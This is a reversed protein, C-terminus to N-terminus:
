LDSEFLNRLTSLLQLHPSELVYIKYKTIRLTTFSFNDIVAAHGHRICSCVTTCRRLLQCFHNFRAASRPQRLEADLGGTGALGDFVVGDVCVLLETFQDRDDDTNTMPVGTLQPEQLADNDYRVRVSWVASHATEWTM